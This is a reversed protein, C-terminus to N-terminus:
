KNWWTEKNIERDVQISTSISEILFGLAVFPLSIFESMMLLIKM